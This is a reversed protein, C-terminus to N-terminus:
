VVSKKAYCAAMTDATSFRLYTSYMIVSIICCLVDSIPTAWVIGYYPIISNLLFMLPIDVIGKRLIALLFSKRSEGTAQFYSIFTYACASFPAGICLIRLFKAGYRLANSGSQIFVGVLTRSFLMNAIMCIGALSVSLMVTCRTAKKMREYNRNSYNYAILPLVGQSMGRVMCHALMNIKKAVGLGAQCITGYSSMLNDLVAYSINEFLTMLCAPLGTALIDAPIGQRFADASPKFDLVSSKRDKVLVVAYYGLAVANSLATAIAAGLTEYGADLIAFMFLPDLVINLVGGLVVGVSAHMSRGEARILHALLANMATFEGGIVVTVLLYEKAYAHVSAEQGGLLDIFRDAFLFALLSYMLTTAFCGWFAFVSASSARNLNHRGLARSIVCSGGVGFLNAVASLFMFAPMCVTVATLMEDSGTMGIFFTDAMNYIVLIIQGIVTPVALKFIAQMVPIKEFLNQKSTSM